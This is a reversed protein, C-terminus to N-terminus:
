ENEADAKVLAANQEPTKYDKTEYPVGRKKLRNKAWESIFEYMVAFLPVGIFMGAIGFFGSMVTIATIVWESSLGINDGILRPVVVNGDVAQIVLTIIIFPIVKSPDAVLILLGSPIAGIYPGFMPIMNTLALIMALLPYYPVNFIMMAIFFELGVIIADVITGKIYGGFSKDTRTIANLLKEGREASFTARILRKAKAAIKEKGFLLMVSFISGVFVNIMLGAFTKAITGILPLLEDMINEIRVMLDDIAEIVSYIAGSLYTMEGAKQTLWEKATASYGDVKWKFDTISSFVQPILAWAFLAIFALFLIMTSVIALSRRLKYNPKKKTVFAFVKSDFFTVVPNLLYAIVAGTLLPSFARFVTSFFAGFKTNANIFLFVIFLALFLVIAVYVAITTYKRNWVPRM